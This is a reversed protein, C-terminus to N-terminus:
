RLFLWLAAAIGIAGIANRVWERPVRQAIRSASWGGLAAGIAMVIAIPWDVFGTIIFTTAAVGNFCVAAWNKLGNMQHIDAFGMLGLAGLMVIGAAAGFYGGYVAVFFQAVVFGLGPVPTENEVRARGRIRDAAALLPRQGLFVLTAGLVLFPVIIDFQAAPTAVLLWAGVVGGLVSPLAFATMWRRSGRLAERYGVM